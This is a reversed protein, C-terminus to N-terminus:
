GAGPDDGAGSDQVSPGDTNDNSDPDDKYVTLTLDKSNYECRIVSGELRATEYASVRASLLVAYSPLEYTESAGTPIARVMDRTLREVKM